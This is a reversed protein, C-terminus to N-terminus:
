DIERLANKIEQLDPLEKIPYVKKFRITGNKDVIFVARESFGDADRFVGYKKAVDGQPWFDALLATEKVNLSDAWSRKSYISDVSLGLCVADLREFDSRRNELDQMQLACVSTWALPHFSLIVNQKGRYTSLKYEIENQDKLVFDPAVDGVNLSM